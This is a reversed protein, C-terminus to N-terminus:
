ETSMSQVQLSSMESNQFPVSQDERLFTSMLIRPFYPLEGTVATFGHTDQELISYLHCDVGHCPLLM